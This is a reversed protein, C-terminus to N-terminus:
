IFYVLIFWFTNKNLNYFNKVLELITLTSIKKCVYSHIINLFSFSVIISIRWIFLPIKGITM